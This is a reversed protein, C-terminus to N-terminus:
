IVKKMFNYSVFCYLTLFIFFLLLSSGPGFLKYSFFGLFSFLVGSLLIIWLTFQKSYGLKLILHHIHSLDPLFVNNRTVLRRIVVSTIDFVPITVCWLVLVPHFTRVDPHAYYILLWSVLFGLLLSGSDGLFIKKLPTYSMNILWYVLVSSFLIIIIEPDRIGVESYQFIILSILAILVLGGALGDLGDIFNFANTLSIVAFITFIGSFTGMSILGLTSINGIDVVLLGSFIVVLSAIIQAILRIIIGLNFIDDLLGIILVISSSFILIDLIYPLKFLLSTLVLSIYIALGGIMPIPEEHKKRYDPRDILNLSQAAIRLILISVICIFSSSLITLIM